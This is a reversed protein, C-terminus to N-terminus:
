KIKGQQILRQRLEQETQNNTNLDKLHVTLGYAASKSKIGYEVAKLVEILRARDASKLRWFDQPKAIVQEILAQEYNSVTGVGVIDTRLGAKLRSVLVDARGKLTPFLSSGFQNNIKELERAANRAEILDTIEDIYKDYRADTGTFIGGLYVGSNPVIETPRINGQADFSGVLGRSADRMEKISQGKDKSQIQKWEKGDWMMAGYPTEKIQLNADPNLQRFVNEFGAPVYSNGFKDKYKSRFFDAMQQRKEEVSAERQGEQFGVMIDGMTAVKGLPQRTVPKQETEGALIEERSLPKNGIATFKGANEKNNKELRTIAKRIIDDVKVKQVGTLQSDAFGMTEGVGRWFWGGLEDNIEDVTENLITKAQSDIPYLGETNASFNQKWYDGLQNITMRENNIFEKNFKQLDSIAKKSYKQELASQGRLQTNAAKVAQTMLEDSTETTAVDGTEGEVGAEGTDGVAGDETPILFFELGQAKINEYEAKLANIESKPANNRIADAVDMEANKLARQKNRNADDVQEPTVGLRKSESEKKKPKSPTTKQAPAPTEVKAPAVPSPTAPAASSPPTLGAPAEVAPAPTASAPPTLGAPAEVVPATQVKAPAATATTVTAETVPTAPIPIQYLGTGDNIMVGTKRAIEAEEQTLMRVVGETDRMPINRLQVRPIPTSAVSTVPTTGSASVPSSTAGIIGSPQGSSYGTQYHEGTQYYRALYDGVDAVEGYGEAVAQRDRRAAALQDLLASRVEPPLESSSTISREWENYLNNVALNDDVTIGRQKFGALVGAFEEEQEGVSKTPDFDWKGAQIGRPDSAKYTKKMQGYAENATRELENKRMSEFAQLQNGVRSFRAKIGLVAGKKQNLSMSPLKSLTEVDPMLSEAFQQHEPSDAFYNAFQMIEDGLQKGEADLIDNMDSNEQYKKIGEALGAGFQGIGAQYM